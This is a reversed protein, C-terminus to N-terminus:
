AYYSFNIEVLAVRAYPNNAEKHIHLSNENWTQTNEANQGLNQAFNQMEQQNQNHQQFGGGKNGGNENGGNFNGSELSNGQNDKFDLEVNQFGLNNLSNKFEQTNQMILQLANQNSSIQVSLKDGNKAITLEVNGLNEPNLELSIKTVPPRYSAIADRLRDSFHTFTNQVNFRMDRQNQFTNQYIEQNLKQSEKEKAPQAEKPIEKQIKISPKLFNDLFNEQANQNQKIQDQKLDFHMQESKIDLTKESQREQALNQVNKFDKPSEKSTTKSTEKIVSKPTEKSDPKIKSEKIEKNHTTAKPDQEKTSEITKPETQTPKLKTNQSEVNTNIKTDKASIEQKKDQTAKVSQSLDSDKPKITKLKSDKTLLEKDHLLTNLIPESETKASNPRTFNQIIKSDPIVKNQLPTNKPTLNKSELNPKIVNSYDLTSDKQTLVNAKVNNATTKQTEKPSSEISIKQVNLKLNEAVEKLDKLTKQHNTQSFDLLDKASSPAPKSDKKFNEFLNYKADLSKLFNSEQQKPALANQQLATSTQPTKTNKTNPKSKKSTSDLSLTNFIEAFGTSESEDSNHSNKAKIINKQETTKIDLLPLM